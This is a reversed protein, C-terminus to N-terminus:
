ECDPSGRFFMERNTYLCIANRIIIIKGNVDIIYEGGQRVWQALFWDVGLNNVDEDDILEPVIDEDDILEPVSDEDDILGPVIDEDIEIIYEGGQRALQALFWDVGLNNTDEDDIVIPLM